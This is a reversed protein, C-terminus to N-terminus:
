APRGDGSEVEARLCELVFLADAVNDDEVELEPWRVRAAALMADKDTGKGGGKGLAKRKVTAVPFGKYAVGREECLATLHGHLAGYVHAAQTGKHAAVEEYGVVTGDTLISDLFRRFRLFRMGGGEHRGALFDEYGAAVPGGHDIAWGTRSGLDLALLRM